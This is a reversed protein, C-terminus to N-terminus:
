NASSIRRYAEMHWSRPHPDSWIREWQNRCAAYDASGSASTLVKGNEFADVLYTIGTKQFYGCLDQREVQDYDWSNVLGDLNVVQRESLFGITGANWAGIIADPPLNARIWLAAEM